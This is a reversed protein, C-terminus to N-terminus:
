REETFARKMAGMVRGPLQEQRDRLPVELYKPGSGPRNWHKPTLDEHVYLAYPAAPGGYGLTVSIEAGNEVPLEVHGSTMLASTRVPVIVSSPGDKSAAMVEEGFQFLEAKVNRRAREEVGRLKSRLAELGDLKFEISAM